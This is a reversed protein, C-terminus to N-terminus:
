RGRQGRNQLRAQTRRMEAQQNLADQRYLRQNVPAQMIFPQQEIHVGPIECNHEVEHHHAHAAQRGLLRKEAPNQNSAPVDIKKNFHEESHPDLNAGHIREPVHHAVFGEVSEGAQSPRGTKKHVPQGRRSKDNKM